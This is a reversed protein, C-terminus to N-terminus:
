DSGLGIATPHTPQYLGIEGGSPLRVTTKIGWREKGVQTCQVKKAKLAKVEAQLDDCLLYFVAGLLAHGGHVQRTDGDAPHLAAEAPPLKFILWGGGADVARFGLVERFFARDAEPKESYLLIHAGTIM